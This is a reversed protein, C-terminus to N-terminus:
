TLDGSIYVTGYENTLGNDFTASEGAALTYDDAHLAAPVLLLSAACSAAVRLSNPHHKM